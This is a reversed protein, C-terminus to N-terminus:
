FRQTCCLAITSYEETLVDSTLLPVEHPCRRTDSAEPPVRMRRLAASMDRRESPERVGLATLDQSHM